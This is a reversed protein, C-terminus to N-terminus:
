QTILDQLNKARNRLLNWDVRIKRLSDQSLIMEKIGRQIGELDAQWSGLSGLGLEGQDRLIDAEAKIKILEQKSPQNKLKM